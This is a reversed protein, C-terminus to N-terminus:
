HGIEEAAQGPHQLWFHKLPRANRELFDHKWVATQVWAM